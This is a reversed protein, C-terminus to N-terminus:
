MPFCPFTRLKESLGTYAKVDFADLFRVSACRLPVYQQPEIYVSMYASIRVCLPTMCGWM